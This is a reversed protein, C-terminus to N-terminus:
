KKWKKIVEYYKFRENLGVWQYKGRYGKEGKVAVMQTKVIGLENM